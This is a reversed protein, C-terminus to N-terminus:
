QIMFKPIVRHFVTGDYLPNKTKLRTKPDTWEKKGEALETFNAVTKPAKDFFLRCKIKGMNTDFLAYMKTFGKKAAPKAAAKKSDAQLNFTLLFASMLIMSSFIKATM